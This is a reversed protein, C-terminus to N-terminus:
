SRRQVGTWSSDVSHGPKPTFQAQWDRLANKLRANEERLSAEVAKRAVLEDVVRRLFAYVHEEALGRRGFGTRRFRLRRVQEPGMPVLRSAVRFVGVAM